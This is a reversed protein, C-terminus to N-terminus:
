EAPEVPGFPNMLRWGGDVILSTGTVYASRESLLFGAVNVIDELEGFRGLPIDAQVRERVADVAWTSERAGPTMVAGPALANVRLGYPGWERAVTRILAELGSKAAVSHAVGPEERGAFATTVVVASGPREARMLGQAWRRLVHFPGNLSSEVVARFGNPTIDIAPAHFSGAAANLLLGIPGDQEATDFAADVAQGERINAVLPVIHSSPDLACTEELTERTRGLVYVQMGAQALALAVARGMGSGGGTVLVRRDLFDDADMSM